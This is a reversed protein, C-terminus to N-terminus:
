DITAVVLTFASECNLVSCQWGKLGVWTLSVSLPM